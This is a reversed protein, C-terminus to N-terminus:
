GKSLEVILKCLDGVKEIPTNIKSEDIPMPDDNFFLSQAKMMINVIEISELGLDKLLSSEPTIGKQAKDPAVQSLIGKVKEFVEAEQLVKL